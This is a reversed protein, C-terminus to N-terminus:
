SAATPSPGTTGTRATPPGCGGRTSACSTQPPWRRVSGVVLDSDIFVIVGGRAAAVGRNRAATAGAHRQRLLRVHPLQAAREQLFGVTGDTSGDDVVVVEFDRVIGDERWLRQGELAALCKQLIPLRNYTPIM